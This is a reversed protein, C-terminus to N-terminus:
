ACLYLPSFKTNLSHFFLIFELIRMKLYCSLSLPCFRCLTNLQNTNKQKVKTKACLSVNTISTKSKLASSLLHIEVKVSIYFSLLQPMFCDVFNIYKSVHCVFLYVLYSAVPSASKSTIEFIFM